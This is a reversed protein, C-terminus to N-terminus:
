NTGVNFILHEIGNDSSYDGIDMPICLSICLYFRQRSQLPLQLVAATIM